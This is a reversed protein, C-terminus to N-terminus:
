EDRDLGFLRSIAESRRKMIDDEEELDRPKPIVLKMAELYIRMRVETKEEKKFDSVFAKYNGTVFKAIMEKVESTVKNPTGKPRGFPNNTGTAKRLEAKEKATKEKKVESLEKKKM